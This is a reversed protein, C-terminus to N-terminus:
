AIMIGTQGRDSLKHNEKNHQESYPRWDQLSFYQEEVNIITAEHQDRLQLLRNEYETHLHRRSLLDPIINHKGMIHSVRFSINSRAAIYWIQRACNLMLDSRGRGTQLISISSASDSRVHVVKNNLQGEFLKIAILINLM